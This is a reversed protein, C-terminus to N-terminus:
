RSAHKATQGRLTRQRPGHIADSHTLAAFVRSIRRSSVPNAVPHECTIRLEDIKSVSATLEEDDEAVTCPLV